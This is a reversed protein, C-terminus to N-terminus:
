FWNEALDKLSPNSEKILNWKWDRKWAKLVKERAIAQQMAEYEEYYLLFTLNYKSAFASGEGAKHEKVRKELDSTVGVYLVTRHSNSLIYVCPAKM